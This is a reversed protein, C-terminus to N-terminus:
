KEGDKGAYCDECLPYGPNESMNDQGKANIDEGCRGCIVVM